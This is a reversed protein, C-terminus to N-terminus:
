ESSGKRTLALAIIGIVFAILDTALHACDTAIAISNAIYAGCGQASVFFLGVVTVCKLQYMAKQYKEEESLGDDHDHHHGGHYYVDDSDQCKIEGKYRQFCDDDDAVAPQRRTKKPNFADDIIKRGLRSFLM